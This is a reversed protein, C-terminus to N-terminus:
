TNWTIGSNTYQFFGQGAPFKSAKRGKGAKKSPGKWTCFTCSSPFFTSGGWQKKECNVWFPPKEVAKWLWLSFPLLFLFDECFSIINPTQSPFADHKGWNWKAPKSPGPNPHHLQQVRSVELLCPEFNRSNKFLFSMIVHNKGVVSEDKWCLSWTVKNDFFKWRCVQPSTKQHWWGPAFGGTGGSAPGGNKKPQIFFHWSKRPMTKRYKNSYLQISPVVQSYRSFNSLSGSRESEKGQLFLVWKTLKTSSIISM